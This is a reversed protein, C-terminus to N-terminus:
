RKEWSSGVKFRPDFIIKPLEKEWKSFPAVGLEKLMEKFQVVCEDKTPGSDADDSDSSSESINADGNTDKLKDKSNENHQIKAAAEVVKPGSLDSLTQVPTPVPSSTMPTGADQLKKKILDLASSSILAGPTKPTVADRGGTQVAPANLSVHSSGKDSTISASQISNASEKSPEVVENKKMEAVDPPIQWSSIKTINNYYYQKGDNTTVLTWDTGALKEWSVPTPQVVVNGLEGKFCSPKEYTSEGTLSNYYYVAGTDARHATWSEEKKDNNEDKISTDSVYKNDIGSASPQVVLNNAPQVTETSVSQAGGSVVNTSVGPPQLGPLPGYVPAMGQMPMPFPAPVAGPHPLFPAHQLNGAHSTHLWLSQSPPAQPTISPYHPYNPQQFNQQIPVSTSVPNVPTSAPSPLIPRVSSSDTQTPRITATSPSVSSALWSPGPAINGLMGPPRPFSPFASTQVTAPNLNASPPPNTSFNPPMHAPMQMSQSSFSAATGVLEASTASSINLNSSVVKESSDAVAAQPNGGYSFSTSSSLQVLTPPNQKGTGPLTSGTAPSQVPVSSQLSPAAPSPLLPKGQMNTATSSFQHSTTPSVSSQSIVNYSFSPRLAPSQGPVPPQLASPPMPTTVKIVSSSVSQQSNALTTNVRPFVSYSFSPAPVVYGASGVFKARLSDQPAETAIADNNRYTSTPLGGVPPPGNTTSPGSLPSPSAPVQSTLTTDSGRLPQGSFTSVVASSKPDDSPQTQTSISTASVQGEQPTWASSSM